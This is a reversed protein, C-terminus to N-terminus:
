SLLIGLKTDLGTAAETKPAHTLVASSPGALSASITTSLLQSSSSDILLASEDSHIRSKKTPPPGIFSQVYSM